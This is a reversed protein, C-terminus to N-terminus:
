HATSLGPRRLFWNPRGLVPAEGIVTFGHRRYFAVNESKDTELYAPEATRDWRDAFENMILSGIGQGQRGRDVAIPGFHHHPWDPHQRGWASQWALVRLLRRPGINIMTAAARAQQGVRLRCEGPPASAAVGVLTEGDFAGVTERQGAVRFLGRFMLDLCRQRTEPDPGFAAVHGPNDRMGRALVGVAAETEDAGIPRLRIIDKSM